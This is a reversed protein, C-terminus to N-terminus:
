GQDPGTASPGAPSWSWTPLFPQYASLSVPRPGPLFGVLTDSGVRVWCLWARGGPQFLVAGGLWVRGYRKM